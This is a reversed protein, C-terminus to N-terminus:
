EQSAQTVDMVMVAEPRRIRPLCYIGAVIDYHPNAESQGSKDIVFAFKGPLPEGTPSHLSPVSVVDMIEGAAADGLFVVKNDPIFKQFTGNEDEYGEVYINIGIGPFLGGSYRSLNGPLVKEQIGAGSYYQRTDDSLCFLQATYSNMYVEGLRYGTGVFDQEVRLIDEVPKSTQKDAWSASVTKALNEGPVGYQAAIIIGNESISLGGNLLAQWRMWEIRNEIRGNLNDLAAGILQRATIKQQRTGGLQGLRLIDSENIRHMEKFYAPKFSKKVVRPFEAMGPEADLAHARAMGQPGYIEDYEIEQFYSHVVPAFSSGLFNEPDSKMKRIAADIGKATPWNIMRKM